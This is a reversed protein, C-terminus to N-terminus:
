QGPHQQLEIQDGLGRRPMATLEVPRLLGDTAGEIFHAADRALQPWLHELVEAEDAREGLQCCSEPTNEADIDLAVEIGRQRFECGFGLEGDVADRLLAQRIDRPM